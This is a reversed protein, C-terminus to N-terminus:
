TLSEEKYILALSVEPTGDSKYSNSNFLCMAAVSRVGFPRLKVSQGLSVIIEYGSQKAEGLACLWSVLSVRQRTGFKRNRM